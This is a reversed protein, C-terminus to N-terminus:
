PAPLILTRRAESEFAAALEAVLDPREAARDHQEAPDTALDYLQWRPPRRLDRGAIVGRGV